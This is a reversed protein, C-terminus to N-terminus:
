EFTISPPRDDPGSFRPRPDLPRRQGAMLGNHRGFVEDLVIPAAAKREDGRKLDNRPWALAGCHASLSASIQSAQEAWFIGQESSPIGQKPLFIGQESAHPIQSCAMSTAAQIPALIVSNPAFERFERNIERNTPFKLGSVPAILVADDAVWDPRQPTLEAHPLVRSM